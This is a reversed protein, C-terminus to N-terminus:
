GEGLLASAAPLSAMRERLRVWRKRAAEAGIGLLEGVEAYELRELGRYQFILREEEPLARVTALLRELAEDRRVRRSVTTWAAPLDQQRSISLPGGPPGLRGRALQRLAEAAVIQAVGFLWPRFGGIREDYRPLARWAALCVEQVLDDPALARGLPGACRLSAWAYLASAVEAYHTAFDRPRPAPDTM